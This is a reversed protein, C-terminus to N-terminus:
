LYLRKLVPISSGMDKWAVKRLLAIRPQYAQKLRAIEDNKGDRTRLLVDMYTYTQVEEFIKGQLRLIEKNLRKKHLLKSKHPWYLKLTKKKKLQTLAKTIYSRSDAQLVIDYAYITVIVGKFSYFGFVNM